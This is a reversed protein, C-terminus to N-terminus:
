CSRCESEHDHRSPMPLMVRLRNTTQGQLTTKTFWQHLEIYAWLGEGNRISSIKMWPEGQCKDLLISWLDRNLEVINEALREYKVGGGKMDTARKISLHEVISGRATMNVHGM